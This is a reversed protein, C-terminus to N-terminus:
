KLTISAGGDFFFGAGAEIGKFVAFKQSTYGVLDCPESIVLGNQPLGNKADVVFIRAGGGNNEGSPDYSFQYVTGDTGRKEEEMSWAGIWEKPVDVSFYAYEVKTQLNSIEKWMEYLDLQNNNIYKKLFFILMYESIMHRDEIHMQNRKDVALYFIEPKELNKVFRQDEAFLDDINDKNKLYVKHKKIQKAYINNLTKFIMGYRKDMEDKYHKDIWKAEIILVINRSMDYIACDIDSCQNKGNEDLFSYPKTKAFAINKIDKLVDEIRGETVTSITRERNEISIEKMYHGNIITFQWDNVMIASPITIINGEIEFLPFALLSMNGDNILYDVITAIKKESIHSIEAIKRICMNKELIIICEEGCNLIDDEYEMGIRVYIAKIMAQYYFYAIVNALQKPNDFIASRVKSNWKNLDKEIIEVCMQYLDIDISNQLVEIRKQEIIIKEWFAINTKLIQKKEKESKELEDAGYFYFKEEQYVDTVLSTTLVYRNNSKEVLRPKTFPNIDNIERAFRYNQYLPILEENYSRLFKKFGPINFKKLYIEKGYEKAKSFIYTTISRKFLNEMSEPKEKIVGLEIAALPYLLYYNCNHSDLWKEIKLNTDKEIINHLEGLLEYENM